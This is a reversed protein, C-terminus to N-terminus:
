GNWRDLYQRVHRSVPSVYQHISQVYRGIVKRFNGIVQFHLVTPQSDATDHDHIMVMNFAVTRTYGALTDNMTDKHDMVNCTVPYLSSVVLTIDEFGISQDMSLYENLHRAYLERRMSDPAIPHDSADNQLSSAVEWAFRTIQGITEMIVPPDFRKDM